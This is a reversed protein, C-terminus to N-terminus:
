SSRLLGPHYSSIRSPSFSAVMVEWSLGDQTQKNGKVREKEKVQKSQLVLEERVGEGRMKFYVKPMIKPKDQGIGQELYSTGPISKNQHAMKLAALIM